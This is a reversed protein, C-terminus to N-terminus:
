KIRWHKNRLTLTKFLPRPAKGRGLWRTKAPSSSKKTHNFFTSFRTFQAGGKAAVLPRINCSSQHKAEVKM